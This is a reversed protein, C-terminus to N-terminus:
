SNCSLPSSLGFGDHSQRCRSLSFICPFSTLPSFTHLTEGQNVEKERNNLLSYEGPSLTVEQPSRWSRPVQDDRRRLRLSDHHPDPCRYPSRCVLEGRLHVCGSRCSANRHHENRYRGSNRFRRDHKKLETKQIQIANHSQGILTFEGGYGDQFIMLSM